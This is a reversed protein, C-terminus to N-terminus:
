ITPFVVAGNQNKPMDLYCIRSTIKTKLKM